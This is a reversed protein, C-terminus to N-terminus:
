ITINNEKKIKYTRYNHLKLFVITCTRLQSTDLYHEQFEKPNLKVLLMQFTFRPYCM